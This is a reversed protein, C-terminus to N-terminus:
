ANANPDACFTHEVKQLVYYNGTEQYTYPDNLSVFDDVLEYLRLEVTMTTGANRYGVDIPGCTFQQLEAVLSYPISGVGTMDAGVSLVLEMVRIEEGAKLDYPLIFGVKAGFADLSGFVGATYAKVDQNCYIVFDMGWHSYRTGNAADADAAEQATQHNAIFTYTKDIIFETSKDDNLKDSVIVEYSGPHSGATHDAANEYARLENGVINGNNDTDFSWIGVTNSLSSRIVDDYYSTPNASYEDNIDVTPDPANEPPQHPDFNGQVAEICIQLKCKKGQYLNDEDTGTNPLTIVVPIEAPDEGVALTEWKSAVDTTFEEDNVSIELGEFLGTNEEVVNKVVARYKVAVNSKNEAVVKFKLADGCVLKDMTLTGNSYTASGGLGDFNTQYNQVPTWERVNLTQFYMEEVSAEVKVTASSVAINVPAESTFLALTAGTALSAALAISAVSSFIIKKKKM